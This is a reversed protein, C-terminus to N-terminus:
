TIELRPPVGAFTGHGHHPPAPTRTAPMSACAAQSASRACCAPSCPASCAPSCLEGSGAAQSVEHLNECHRRSTELFADLTEHLRLAPLPLPRHVAQWALVSALALMSLHTAFGASRLPPRM